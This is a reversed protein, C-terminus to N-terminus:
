DDDRRDTDDGLWADRFKSHAPAGSRVRKELRRSVAIILLGLVAVAVALLAFHLPTLTM